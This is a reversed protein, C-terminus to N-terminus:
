ICAFFNVARQLLHLTNLNLMVRKPTGTVLYWRYFRKYYRAILKREAETFEDNYRRRKSGSRGLKDWIEVIVPYAVIRKFAEGSFTPRLTVPRDSDEFDEFDAMHDSNNSLM